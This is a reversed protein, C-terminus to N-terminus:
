GAAKLGLLIECRDIITLRISDRHLLLEPLTTSQVISYLSIVRELEMIRRKQSGGEYPHAPVEAFNEAAVRVQSIWEFEARTLQMRAAPEPALTAIREQERLEKNITHLETLTAKMEQDFSEGFKRFVVRSWIEAFDEFTIHEAKQLPKPQTVARLTQAMVELSMYPSTTKKAVRILHHAWSALDDIAQNPVEATRFDLHFNMYVDHDMPRTLCQDFDSKRRMSRPRQYFDELRRFFAQYSQSWLGESQCTKFLMFAKSRNPEACDLLSEINQELLRPFAGWLDGVM